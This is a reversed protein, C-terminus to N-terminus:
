PCVTENLTLTAANFPNLEGTENVSDPNGEPTLPAKLM